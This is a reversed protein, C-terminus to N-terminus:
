ADAMLADDDPRAGSLQRRAAALASDVDRTGTAICLTYSVDELRQRAGASGEEAHLVRLAEYRELLDTLLAPHAMLM